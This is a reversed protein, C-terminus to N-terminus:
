LVAPSQLRQGPYQVHIVEEDSTEKIKMIQM